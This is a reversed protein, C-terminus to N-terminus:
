QAALQADLVQRFAEIPQAGVVVEDGIVFSPTGTVGVKSGESIDADIEALVEEDKVCTNFKAKDVGLAIAWAELNSVSLEEQNEFIKNHMEFYKEDGLQTKVCNAAASAPTAVQHFGLPFDKFVLRAKGTDIYEEKLQKYTTSYFRACFPCEYDSFEYITIPADPNGLAPENTEDIVIPEGPVKEEVDEGYSDYDPVNASYFSDLKSMKSNVNEVDETLNLICVLMIIALILNIIIASALIIKGPCCKKSSCSGNEVSCKESNSLEKVVEKKAVAKKVPAKKTTKDDKITKKVMCFINSLFRKYINLTM